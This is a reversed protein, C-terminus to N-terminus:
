VGMVQVVARRERQCADFDCFVIEQWRGLIMAGDTFPISLSPGVLGARVHSHGNGDGNNLNHQWIRDAPALEDLVTQFDQIVGPEWEITTIAATAGPAFVTLTGERLGSAALISRVQPTLLTLDAHGRSSFEIYETAVGLLGERLVPAQQSNVSTM